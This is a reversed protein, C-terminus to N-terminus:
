ATPRRTSPSKVEPVMKDELILAMRDVVPRVPHVLHVLHVVVPRASLAEVRHASLVVVLRVSLVVELRASLVVVLRASLAEVRHALYIGALDEQHVVEVELDVKHVTEEELHALAEAVVVMVVLLSM